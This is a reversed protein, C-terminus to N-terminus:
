KKLLQIFQRVACTHLVPKGLNKWYKTEPTIQPNKRPV